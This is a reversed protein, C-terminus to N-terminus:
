CVMLNSGSIVGCQEQCATCLLPAAEGVEPWSEGGGAKSAAGSRQGPSKAATQQM